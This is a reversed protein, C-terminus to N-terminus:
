LSEEYKNLLNNFKTPDEKEMRALAGPDNKQYWDWTKNDVVAASGGNAKMDALQASLRTQAAPQQTTQQTASAAPQAADTGDVMVMEIFLDFDAVALKRLRAENKENVVGTNKGLTIYHNVLEERAKTVEENKKTIADLIQQETAAATLCLAAAIKQLSMDDTNNPKYENSVRALIQTTTLNQFEAKRKSEEIEDCLKEKKAEDATFWTEDQMLKAIKDKDCGRSSLITRLTDTLAGICKKAKDSLDADTVGRFYPDHIMLKSYDQMSVKDGCVAIVAGMSAAIGDIHVHMFAKMNRMTSVISLGQFVDGGPSNIHLHITDYGDLSALEHAFQNGDISDTGIEGYLRMHVESKEKNVIEIYKSM